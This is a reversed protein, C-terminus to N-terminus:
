WDVLKWIEPEAVGGVEAFLAAAQKLHVMAEDHEGTRRLLDALNNHLAAQRHRDGVAASRDLAARATELAEDLAGEAALALALNNAAAVEAGADDLERALHLSRTLERRAAPVDGRSSALMGLLNHAQALASHDGAQSAAALARRALDAADDPAGRRHAVLSRDALLRATLAALPKEALAARYHQDALAWEGRRAHVGGLKHELEPLRGSGSAAAAAEFSALAETYRGTRTHLEGLAQHLRAPDPYGLALADGYHQVAEPFALLRAAHEGALASWEAADDDLGALRFHSALVGALAGEQRQRRARGILAGAVRRHLLRRRALSTEDYALARLQAHTFDYTGNLEAVIAHAGLEELAGATEEEGRGSAERVVELDFSRGIVAATALVQGATESVEDLRALFVERAGSPLPGDLATPDTALAAVLEVVLLPLGETEAHVRLALAAADPAAATVLLRVDDADLRDLTLSTAVGDRRAEALLRRLRHARGVAESRWTLVVALPRGRLRRVLHTLIDLSSEDAWQADEIVLVGPGAGVLAGALVRALGDVLRAPAGPDELPPPVPLGPRLAGLEPLLRTAEALAHDAVADLWGPEGRELAAQLADAILGYALGSEGEYCRAVISRHSALRLDALVETVLRTKGIGAEGEVVALIGDPQAREVATLLAERESDRGVFPRSIALAGRVAPRTPHVPTPSQAPSLQRSSIERYLATTEELPEVSLERDLIRVCERYQRLAAAHQDNWAYLRMLERHAPEHLPDLALWRRAVSIAGDLDGTATRAHALRELLGALDRRVEEATFFQWDDFQASDRLAFGELFPGRHLAMAAELPALCAPCITSRPHGHRECSAVLEAARTIDVDASGPVFVVTSRDIALWEEGVAHRLTSLTRRLVRGARERDIEPWLLAALAERRHARGTVVLYALLAIAKRTDVEVSRGDREILPPGLLAVRLSDTVAAM